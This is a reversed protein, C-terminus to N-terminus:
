LLEVQHKQESKKIKKYYDRIVRRLDEQKKNYEETADDFIRHYAEKINEHHWIEYIGNPDIHEEKLVYEPNRVNHPQVVKSGHQVSVTYAPNIM